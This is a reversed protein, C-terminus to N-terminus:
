LGMADNLSQMARIESPMLSELLWVIHKENKKDFDPYRLVFDDSDYGGNILEQARRFIIEQYSNLMLAVQKNYEKKHSNSENLTYDYIDQLMFIMARDKYLCFNDTPAKQEYDVIQRKKASCTNGGGHIVNNTM